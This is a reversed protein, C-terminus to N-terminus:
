YILSLIDLVNGEVSIVENKMVEIKKQINLIYAEQDEIKILSNKATDHLKKISNVSCDSVVIEKSINEM